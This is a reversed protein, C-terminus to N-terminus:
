AEHINVACHLQDKACQNAIQDLLWGNPCECGPLCMRNCPHSPNSCTFPNGPCDVCDKYVQGPITCKPVVPNACTAVCKGAKEDLLLGSPCECGPLCMRNCPHSPNSCTFPNGPCDVCDKYVQGPIACKPVVPKACTAVCKGAKEDLLLGSPCECGPLCMRNCPHSPNSCTFPNGPCDVCDKYVQGPIACKPVVPNACTAVCKGAKEDLLLGSPCECGPLCMRNCPHSPNSCTFPNGPCDVCEKYVQGPITCKPVVPKACTAVCKGAKEDLLLGSPCECGPLCMRNCPHSPNSCTFPNGPCDVCDKYVQGPIACKPVVSSVPSACTVIPFKYRIYLSLKRSLGQTVLVSMVVLVTVMM